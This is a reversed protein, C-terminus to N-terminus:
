RDIVKSCITHGSTSTASGPCTMTWHSMSLTNTRSSVFVMACEVVADGLEKYEIRLPHGKFSRRAYFRLAAGFPDRGVVCLNFNETPGLGQPWAVFEPLNVLFTAKVEYENFTESKASPATTVAVWLMTALALRWTRASAPRNTARMM